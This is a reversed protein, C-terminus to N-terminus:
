SKYHPSWQAASVRRRLDAEVAHPAVGDAVAALAVATAVHLAVERLGGVPPLLSAQPDTLAPSVEGLATAAAQMMADTVRTAGSAVVGLGVAPFIFVNNSQAVEVRSGGVEVPPYPSGTATLM